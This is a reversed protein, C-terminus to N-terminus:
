RGRVDADRPSGGFFVVYLAGRSGDPNFEQVSLRPGEANGSGAFALGFVLIALSVWMLGLYLAIGEGSLDKGEVTLPRRRM